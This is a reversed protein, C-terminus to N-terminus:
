AAMREVAEELVTPDCVFHIRAHGRDAAGVTPGLNLAVKANHPM